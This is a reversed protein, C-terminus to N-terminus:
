VMILPQAHRGIRRALYESPRILLEPPLGRPLLRLTGLSAHNGKARLHLRSYIGLYHSLLIVFLLKETPNPVWQM